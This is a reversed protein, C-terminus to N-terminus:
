GQRLFAAIRSAVLEPREEPLHHGAGPVVQVDLSDAYPTGDGLMAPPLLRDAAGLVLLTPVRLRRREPHRLNPLIEHYAFQHMLEESARAISARRSAEVYTSLATAGMADRDAVAIRLLARTFAPVHRLVLRGVHPTEVFPTWLFRWAHPAMRRVDTYPHMANLGILREVREPSRLALQFGLGAGRDHGVVSVRGLRLTDLLAELDDVLEATRYGHAPADTWGAGRLDVCVVRHNVSLRPVLHRWAYWHQPWGHLLVLPPGDGSEALHMRLRGTDVLRHTVGAV